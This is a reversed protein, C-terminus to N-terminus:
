HEQTPLVARIQHVLQDPTFPKVLLPFRASASGLKPFVRDYGSMLVIRLASREAAIREALDLGSGGPMAIDTLVVQVDDSQALREWAHQASRAEIVQYGEERLMRATLWRVRDDDDVVMVGVASVARGTRDQDPAARVPSWMRGRNQLWFEEVVQM